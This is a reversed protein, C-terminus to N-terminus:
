DNPVADGSRGDIAAYLLSDEADCGADLADRYRRLMRKVTSESCGLRRAIETNPREERDLRVIDTVLRLREALRARRQLEM